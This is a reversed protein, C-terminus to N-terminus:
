FFTLLCLEFATTLLLLTWLFAEKGKLPQQAASSLLVLIEAGGIQIKDGSALPTDGVRTGNQLVIADTLPVLRFKASSADLKIQCHQDWVGPSELVVDAAASRGIHAPFRTITVLNRSHNERIDLSLM